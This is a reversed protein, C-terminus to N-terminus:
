ALFSIFACVSEYFSSEPFSGYSWILCRPECADASHGLLKSRFLPNCSANLQSCSRDIQSWILSNILHDCMMACETDLMEVWIHLYCRRLSNLLQYPICLVTHSGPFVTLNNGPHLLVNHLSRSHPYSIESALHMYFSCSCSCSFSAIAWARTTSWISTQLAAFTWAKTKWTEQLRALHFRVSHM